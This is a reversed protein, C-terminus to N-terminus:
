LNYGITFQIHANKHVPGSQLIYQKMFRLELFISHKLNLDYELGLNIVYGAMWEGIWGPYNPYQIVVLSDTIMSQYFTTEYTFHYTMVGGADVMPRLKRFPFTYRFTTPFQISTANVLLDYDKFESSVTYTYHLDQFQPAVHISFQSASLPFDFFAGFLWSSEYKFDFPIYNAELVGKTLLIKHLGIGTHPGFRFRPFHRIDCKNYKLILRSFPQKKYNADEAMEAFGNCDSTLNIISESLQSIQKSGGPIIQRIL